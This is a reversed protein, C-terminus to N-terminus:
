ADDAAAPSRTATAEAPNLLKGIRRRTLFMGGLLVALLCNGPKCFSRVAQWLVHNWPVPEALDQDALVVDFYGNFMEDWSQTGARVTATPDPNAPNDTSNDYVATCRILTGAPLRRPEALVYRHQWNFDYQPVDLLIEEDGNPFIAKYRFSKGRLHMHPFLALLLVDKHIQWTQSVKHNAEGPPIRLDLDYMLKTAVEQRM